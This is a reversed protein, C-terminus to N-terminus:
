KGGIYKDLTILDSLFTRAQSCSKSCFRGSGYTGDHKNGCRECKPM